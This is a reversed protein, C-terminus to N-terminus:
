EEGIMPWVSMRCDDGQCSCEAYPPTALVWREKCDKTEDSCAGFCDVVSRIGEEGNSILASISAGDASEVNFIVGFFGASTAINMQVLKFETIAYEAELYYALEKAYTGYEETLWNLVQTANAIEQEQDGLVFMRLEGSECASFFYDPNAGIGTELGCSGDTIVLYEKFAGNKMSNFFDSQKIEIGRNSKGQWTENKGCQTLLLSLMLVAVLYVNRQM